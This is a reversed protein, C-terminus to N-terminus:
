VAALTNNALKANKARREQRPKIASLRAAIM